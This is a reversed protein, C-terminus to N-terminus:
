TLRYSDSQSEPFIHDSVLDEADEWRREEPKPNVSKVGPLLSSWQLSFSQKSGVQTWM